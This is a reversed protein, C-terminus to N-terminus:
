VHEVSADPAFRFGRLFSKVDMQSKGEPQLQEISLWGDACSIRLYNKQDTSIMTAVGPLDHSLEARSIKLMIKKGNNRVVTFAGPVPSLGRILNRVEKAPRNWNIRCTEKNLKPAHSVATEDQNIFQLATGTTDSEAIARVTKLLTQSGVGALKDHLEGATMGESIAVSERFLVEGSDIEHRLKFTTVGTVTEGRIIAWNIPAAGRYAPLLSAHLNYTGLRPMSWVQEPLMRFAVVIQLDANYSRLEKLFAEDKLKEPQMVPIAMSRAFVKVASESLKQGRGAPRDPATVVAVPKYGNDCLLKLSVVAFEPTGMFVIRM